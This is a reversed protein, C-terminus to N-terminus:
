GFLGGDGNQREGVQAAIRLLLVEGISHDVVYDSAECADLPQEDDRVVRAQSVLSARHVHLLDASLKANAIDEFAAYALGATANAHGPLHDICRGTGM